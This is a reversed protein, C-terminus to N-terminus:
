FPHVSYKIATTRKLHSEGELNYFFQVSTYNVPSNEQVSILIKYQREYKGEWNEVCENLFPCTIFIDQVM